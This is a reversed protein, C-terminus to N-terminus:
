IYTVNHSKFKKKGKLTQGKSQDVLTERVKESAARGDEIVNTRRWWPLEEANAERPEDCWSLRPEWVM